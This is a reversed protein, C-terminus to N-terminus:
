AAEHEAKKAIDDGLLGGGFFGIATLTTGAAFSLFGRTFPWQQNLVHSVWPCFWALAVMLAILAGISAGLWAAWGWNRVDAREVITPRYIQVPRDAQETVSSSQASELAKLRGDQSDLRDRHANLAPNVTGERWTELSSVREELEAVKAAVQTLLEDAEGAQKAAKDAAEGAESPDSTTAAQNVAEMASALTRGAQAILAKLSSLETKDVKNDLKEALGGLAARQKDLQENRETIASSVEKLKSDVATHIAAAAQAVKADIHRNNEKVLQVVAAGSEGLMRQVMETATEKNQQSM